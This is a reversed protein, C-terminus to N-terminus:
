FKILALTRCYFCAAGRQRQNQHANQDLPLLAKPTLASTEPGLMREAAALASKDAASASRHDDLSGGRACWRLGGADLRMFEADGGGGCSAV